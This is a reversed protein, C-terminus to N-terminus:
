TIYHLTIHHLTMFIYHLTVYHFTIYHLTIYNDLCWLPRLVLWAAQELQGGHRLAATGRVSGVGDQRLQAVQRLTHRQVPAGPQQVAGVSGDLCREVAAEVLLLLLHHDAARLLESHLGYYSFM